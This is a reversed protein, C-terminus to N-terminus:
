KSRPGDLSIRGLLLEYELVPVHWVLGLMAIGFADPESALTGAERVHGGGARYHVCHAHEAITRRMALVASPEIRRLEALANLEGRAVAAGDLLVSARAFWSGVHWPWQQRQGDHFLM